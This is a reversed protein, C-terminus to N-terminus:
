AKLWIVSDETPECEKFHKHTDSLAQPEKLDVKPLLM